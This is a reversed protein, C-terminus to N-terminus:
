RSRDPTPNARDLADDHITAPSDPADLEVVIVRRCLALAHVALSTAVLPDNERVEVEPNAWGGRSNARFFLRSTVYRAWLARDVGAQEAGSHPDALLTALSDCYYYYVSDREATRSESFDGPHHNASFNAALWKWGAQVREDGPAAGAMLLARVGDCTASGYSAFREGSTDEGAVGAKNRVADTPVFFFGGDDFRSGKTGGAAFNQCRRVFQEAASLEGAPPKLGAARLGALAYVTASLNPELLPGVSAGEPPKRPRDPAYGWGGYRSDSPSWGNQETLQRERLYELWASRARSAAQGSRGELLILACAATYVPYAMGSRPPRITGEAAVLSNLYGTGREITAEPRADPPLADLAVLVLPTLADGAKFPAYVDSRWAGDPSQREALFKAAHDLVSDILRPDIGAAAKGAPRQALARDCGCAVLVLLAVVSAARCDRVLRQM